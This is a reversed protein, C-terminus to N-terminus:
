RHPISHWSSGGAASEPTRHPTYQRRHPKNWQPWCGSRDNRVASKGAESKFYASENFLLAPSDHETARSGRKEPHKSLWFTKDFRIDTDNNRLIIASQENNLRKTRGFGFASYEKLLSLLDDRMAPLLEQVGILDAKSRRCLEAAIERRQAWRHSRFFPLDRKLNFTIVRLPTDM